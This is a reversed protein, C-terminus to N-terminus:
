AARAERMLSAARAADRVLDGYIHLFLHRRNQDSVRDHAKLSQLAILRADLDLLDAAERNVSKLWDTAMGEASARLEAPTPSSEIIAAAMLRAQQDIQTVVAACNASLGNLDIDPFHPVM